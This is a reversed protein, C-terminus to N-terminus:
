RRDRIIDDSLPGGPMKIPKWAKFRAIQEPTAPPPITLRIGKTALAAALEQDPSEPQSQASQTRLLKIFQEREELSLASAQRLLNNVNQSVV